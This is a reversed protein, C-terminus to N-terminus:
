ANSLSFKSYAKELKEDYNNLKYNRGNYIKAILEFDKEQIAEVLNPTAIIFKVLATLQYYESDEMDFSFDTLTKYNLKQYNFGMIQGIGFSTAKIAASPSQLLAQEYALRGTFKPNFKASEITMSAPLFFPRAGSFKQFWDPEFRVKCKNAFTHDESYFGSYNSEVEIISRLISAEINNQKALETLLFDKEAPTLIKKM